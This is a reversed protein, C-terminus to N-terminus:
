DEDATMWALFAKIYFVIMLRLLRWKRRASLPYQNRYTTDWGNARLFYATMGECGFEYVRKRNLKEAYLKSADSVYDM